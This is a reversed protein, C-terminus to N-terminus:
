FPVDELNIEVWKEEEKNDGKLDEEAEQILKYLEDKNLPYKLFGEIRSWEADKISMSPYKQKNLYTQIKVREGLYSLGVLANALDKSANTLTAEIFVRKNEDEEDQLMISFGRVEDRGTKGNHTARIGKFIWTVETYKELMEYVWAENKKKVQFVPKEETPWTQAILKLYTNEYVKEDWNGLM